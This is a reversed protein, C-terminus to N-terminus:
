VVGLKARLFGDRILYDRVQRGDNKGEHKGSEVQRRRKKRSQWLHFSLMSHLLESYGRPSYPFSMLSTTAWSVQESSRDVGDDVSTVVPVRSNPLM